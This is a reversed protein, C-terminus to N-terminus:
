SLSKRPIGRIQSALFDITLHIDGSVVGPRPKIKLRDDVRSGGHAILGLAPGELPSARKPWRSYIDSEDVRPFLLVVLLFSSGRRPVRAPCSFLARVSEEGRGPGWRGQRAMLWTGKEIPDYEVGHVEASFPKRAAGLGVV